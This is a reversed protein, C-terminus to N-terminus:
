VSQYYCTAAQNLSQFPWKETEQDNRSLYILIYRFRISLM